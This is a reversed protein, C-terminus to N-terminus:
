LGYEKTAASYHRRLEECDRENVKKGRAAVSLRLIESLVVGKQEADM